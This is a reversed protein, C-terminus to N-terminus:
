LTDTERPKEDRTELTLFARVRRFDDLARRGEKEMRGEGDKEKGKERWAESRGEKM